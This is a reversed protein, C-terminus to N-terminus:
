GYLTNTIGGYMRNMIELSQTEMLDTAHLYRKSTVEMTKHGLRRQIEKINVGAECLETAHTHRLSHFDFKPYSLETKIVHNSHQTVRTQIYTGDERTTVMEIPMGRKETNLYGDADVYTQVYNKGYHRRGDEQRARERKLLEWIVNDLKIRRTTGYKPPVIKWKSEQKIWQIQQQIFIIGYDSADDDSGLAPSSRGSM